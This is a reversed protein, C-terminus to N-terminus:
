TASRSHDHNKEVAQQYGALMAPDDISGHHHALRWNGAREDYRFVRTTRIALPIAAGSVSFEGRERGAFVVMDPSDYEVVDYFEVWVSAAGSFVRGYLVEIDSYGRRIGGLPNCLQALPHDLWVQSLVRLSRRNFAHYFSELAARAGLPGRRKAERLRNKAKRGITLRTKSAWSIPSAPSPTACRLPIM